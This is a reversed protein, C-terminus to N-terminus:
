LECSIVNVSQEGPSNMEQIMPGNVMNLFAFRVNLGGSVGMNMVNQQGQAIFMVDGGDSTYYGGQTFFNNPSPDQDNMLAISEALIPNGDKMKSSGDITPNLIPLKLKHGFDLSLNDIPNSSESIPAKRKSSFM